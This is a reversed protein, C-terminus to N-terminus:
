QAWKYFVTVFLQMVNTGPDLQASLHPVAVVSIGLVAVFKIFSKEAYTLVMIPMNALESGPQVM